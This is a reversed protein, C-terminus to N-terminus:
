RHMVGLPPSHPNLARQLVLPVDPHWESNNDDLHLVGPSHGVRDKSCSCKQHGPIVLWIHCAMLVQVHQGCCSPLRDLAGKCGMMAVAGRSRRCSKVLMSVVKCGFSDGLTVLTKTNWSWKVFCMNAYTVGSWVAFDM